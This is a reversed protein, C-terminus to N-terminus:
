RLGATLQLNKGRKKGGKKKAGYKVEGEVKVKEDEDGGGSNEKYIM